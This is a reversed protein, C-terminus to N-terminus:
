RTASSEAREAVSLLRAATLQKVGPRVHLVAGLGTASADVSVRCSPLHPVVHDRTALTRLSRLWFAIKERELQSLRYKYDWTFKSVGSSLSHSRLQCIPGLVVSMSILKGVARMRERCSFSKGLWLFLLSQEASRLRREPVCLSYSRLDIGVGLWTLSHTPTWICKDPAEVVGAAQSRRACYVFMRCM